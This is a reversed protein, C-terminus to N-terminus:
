MNKVWPTAERDSYNTKFKRAIVDCLLRVRPSVLLEEVGCRSIQCNTFLNCALEPRDLNLFGLFNDLLNISLCTPIM